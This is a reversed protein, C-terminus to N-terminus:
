CDIYREITLAFRNYAYIPWRGAHVRRNMLNCMEEDTPGPKHSTTFRLIGAVASKPLGNVIFENYDNHGYVTNYKALIADKQSKFWHYDKGAALVTMSWAKSVPTQSGGDGPGGVIRGKKEGQIIVQFYKWFDSTPDIHFALGYSRHKYVAMNTKHTMISVYTQAWDTWGRPGDIIGWKTSKWAELAAMSFAIGTSSDHYEKLLAEANDAPSVGDLVWVASEWERSVRLPVGRQCLFYDSGYFDTGNARHRIWVGGCAVPEAECASKAEDVGSYSRDPHLRSESCAFTSLTSGSRWEPKTPRPSRRSSSGPLLGDFPWWATDSTEASAARSVMRASEGGLALALLACAFVATGARVM